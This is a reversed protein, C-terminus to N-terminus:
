GGGKIVSAVMAAIGTRIAEPLDPWAVILSDLTADPPSRMAAGIRGSFQPSAGLHEHGLFVAGCQAGGTQSDATNGSSDHAQELGTVGM